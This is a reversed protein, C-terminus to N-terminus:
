SQDRKRTLLGVKVDASQIIRRNSIIIGLTLRFRDKCCTPSDKHVSCLNDEEFIRAVLRVKCKM